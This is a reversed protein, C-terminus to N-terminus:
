KWILADKNWEYVLGVTLLVLFLFMSWYGNIPLVGVSMCWPFLFAIEVDFLVFLIAVLYFHVDFKVRASEFPEFGCVYASQKETNGRKPSLLYAIAALATSLIACIIFFIFLAIYDSEIPALM